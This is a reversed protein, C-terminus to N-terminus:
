DHGVVVEVETGSAGSSRITLTGGIQGARERMGQLGFHQGPDAPAGTPDFGRGDDSIRLVVERPRYDLCAEIRTAGAHKLSNTMAEQAIRYLEDEVAYPLRRPSGQVKVECAITSSERLRRGIRGLAQGLRGLGGEEQEQARLGRV